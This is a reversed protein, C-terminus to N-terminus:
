AKRVAYRRQENCKTGVAEVHSSIGEDLLSFHRTHSVKAHAIFNKTDGLKQDEKEM